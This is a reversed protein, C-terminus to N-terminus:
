PWRPRRCRRRRRSRRARVGLDPVVGVPERLDRGVVRARQRPDGRVQAVDAVGLDAARGGVVAEHLLVHEHGRVAGTLADLDRRADHRRDGVAVDRPEVLVEVRRDDGLDHRGSSSRRGRRRWAAPAPRRRCWASCRTSPSAATRSGSRGLGAMYLRWVRARAEGALRVAEDWNAELNAVWARLTRAYHERLSEVDRVEFGAREMALVSEGVDILEGDPFVYRGIFSTRGLKSGGVSSIAHNLLRGPRGCPPGHLLEYYRDLNSRASTSPCASRPSRTSSGRRGSTATTRCASRSATPSGPRRRGATAPRRRRPRASRSGSSALRRLAHRRPHGDFGLRLRRRAAARRPPRRARAQPLHPRAQAGPRDTLDTADDVFRACSYTMAPGLVIRYFDNGVDYHHQIAAADRRKSHRGGRCAPRRRRRRCRGGSCAPRRAGRARGDADVRRPQAHREPMADRSRRSSPSSTATPTSSVPSTRAPSVSSTRAGCCGGCRTRRDCDCRAWATPRCRARHRGLVGVAGATSRGAAGHVMPRMIEAVPMTGTTTGVNPTTTIAM